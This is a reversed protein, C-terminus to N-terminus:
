KSAPRRKVAVVLVITYIVAVAVVAAVAYTIPLMVEGGGPTVAQEPLAYAMVMGETPVVLESTGVAVFLM